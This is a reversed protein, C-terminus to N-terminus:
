GKKSKIVLETVYIPFFINFSHFIKPSIQSFTTVQRAVLLSTNERKILGHAKKCFFNKAPGILGYNHPLPIIGSHMHGSLILDFNAIKKYVNDNLIHEPSHCLLINYTDKSVNKIYKDYTNIIINEAEQSVKKRYYKKDLDLGVININDFLISKNDLLTLNDIKKIENIFDIVIQQNKIISYYFHNGKIIIVKSIQALKNLFTLTNNKIDDNLLVSQKDLLDGLLFIYDPHKKQAYNVLMELKYFSFNISIHIDTFILINTDKIKKDTILGFNNEKIKKMSNTYCM